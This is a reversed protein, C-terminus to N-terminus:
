SRNSRIDSAWSGTSKPMCPAGLLSPHAVAVHVLKEMESPRFASAHAEGTTSLVPVGVDDLLLDEHDAIAARPRKRLSRNQHRVSNSDAQETLQDETKGEDDSDSLTLNTGNAVDRSPELYSVDTNAQPDTFVDCPNNNRGNLECDVIHQRRVSVIDLTDPRILLVRDNPKFPVSLMTSVVGAPLGSRSKGCAVIVENQRDLLELANLKMVNDTAGTSLAYNLRDVVIVTPPTILQVHLAQSNFRVHLLAAKDQMSYGTVLGYAWQDSDEGRTQAFAIPHGVYSGPWLEAEEGHALRHRLIAVKVDYEPTEESSDPGTQRVTALTGHVKVILLYMFGELAPVHAPGVFAIRGATVSPTTM